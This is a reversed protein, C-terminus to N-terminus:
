YVRRDRPLGPNLERHSLVKQMKKKVEGERRGDAEEVRLGGESSSDDELADGGKGFRCLDSEAIENRM